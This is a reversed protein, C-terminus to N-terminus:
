YRPHTTNGMSFTNSINVEDYVREYALWEVREKMYYYKHIIIIYQTRNRDCNVYETTTVCAGPPPPEPIPELPTGRSVAEMWANNDSGAVTFLPVCGRAVSIFVRVRLM